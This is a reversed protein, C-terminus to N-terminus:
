NRWGFVRKTKDDIAIFVTDSKDDTVIFNHKLKEISDIWQKSQPVYKITNKSELPQILAKIKDLDDETTLYTFICTNRDLNTLLYIETMSEFIFVKPIWDKEFLGKEEASMYNSYKSEVMDLNCSILMTTLFISFLLIIRGSKVQKM